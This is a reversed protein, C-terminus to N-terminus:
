KRGNFFRKLSYIEFSIGGIQIKVGFWMILLILIGFIIIYYM